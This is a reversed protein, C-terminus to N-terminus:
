KRDLLILLNFANKAMRKLIDLTNYVLRNWSIVNVDADHAKICLADKKKNRTDWIRITQDASASAFVDKEVPSWQLDEVSSTHGVFPDRDPLFASQSTASWDMAFGEASHSEVTYLPKLAKQSIKEGSVDLSRIAPKLDWILVKGTDAWSAAIHCDKQPMVRVRNVGGYHKLSRSELIPDEDLAEEDSDDSDKGSDDDDNQTRHLQSMQMVMLENNKPKDAQTGAVIYLTAPFTKREEGLDDRLVDFSLCPWKVNLSHLMEYASQDAELTEDKGLEQGPLYVQEGSEEIEMVDEDEIDSEANEIIEEEYEDEWPDEFEGMKEEKLSEHKQGLRDFPAKTVVTDDSTEFDETTRKSM